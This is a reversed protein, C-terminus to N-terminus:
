GKLGEIINKPVRMPKLSSGQVCAVLIRAVAVIENDRKLIQYFTLSAGGCRELSTHIQMADNLFCPRLYEIEASRIAFSVDQKSLSVLDVGISRLWETRAREFYKLYNAHYVIGGVDTDEYYIRLPWIFQSESEM